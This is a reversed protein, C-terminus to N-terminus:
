FRRFSVPTKRNQLQEMRSQREGHPFGGAKRAWRGAIRSHRRPKAEFSKLSCVSLRLCEARLAASGGM